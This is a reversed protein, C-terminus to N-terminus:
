SNPLLLLPITGRGIREILESRSISLEQSLRDLGALATDTIGFCTPKKVEDYHEPQGRMSKKGKRVPKKQHELRVKKKHKPKQNTAATSKM